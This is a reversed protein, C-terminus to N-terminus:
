KRQLIYNAEVIVARRHQGNPSTTGGCLTWVHFNSRQPGLPRLTRAARKGKFHHASPSSHPDYGSPTQRVDLIVHYAGSMPVWTFEHCCDGKQILIQKHM